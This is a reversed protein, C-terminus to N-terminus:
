GRWPQLELNVKCTMDFSYEICRLRVWGDAIWDEGKFYLSVHSGLEIDALGPTGDAMISLSWQQTPLARARIADLQQDLYSLSM